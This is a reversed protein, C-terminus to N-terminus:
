EIIKLKNKEGRGREEAWVRHLHDYIQDLNARNTLRYEATKAHTTAPYNKIVQTWVDNTGTRNTAEQAVNKLRDLATKGISLPSGDTAPELYYFRAVMSGLTEVTVEFVRATGDVIYTHQSVSAITNLPAIFRGGNLEIEWYGKLGSEETGAGTGGGGTNTTPTPTPTSQAHSLSCSLLIGASIGLLASLRNSRPTNM